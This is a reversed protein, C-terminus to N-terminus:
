KPSSPRSVPISRSGVALFFLPLCLKINARNVVKFFPIPRPPKSHPIRPYHPYSSFLLIFSSLFSFLFSFFLPSFPLSVVTTVGMGLTAAAEDSMGDPIAMQLDAKAVVYEAFAGDQPQVQNAGHVIGAIRDGVRFPKTVAPGVAEVVGAYDCGLRCGDAPRGFLNDASKWDTPNLGVATTRVLVYGERLDPPSVTTIESGGGAAVAIAKIQSPPPPM